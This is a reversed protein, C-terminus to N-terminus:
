RSSLSGRRSSTQAARGSGSSSGRGAVDNPRAPCALIPTTHEHIFRAGILPDCRNRRSASRRNTSDRAAARPVSARNRCSRNTSPSAAPAVAPRFSSSGIAPQAHRVSRTGCTKESVWNALSSVSRPEVLAAGDFRKSHDNTGLASISGVGKAQALIQDGTSLGCPLARRHRRDRGTGGRDVPAASQAPRVANLAGCCAWDARWTEIESASDDSDVCVEGIVDRMRSPGARASNVLMAGAVKARRM